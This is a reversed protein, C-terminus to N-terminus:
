TTSNSSVRLVKGALRTHGEVALCVGINNLMAAAAIEGAEAAPTAASGRTPAPNTGVHGGGDGPVSTDTKPSDQEKHQHQLLKQRLILALRFCRLSLATRRCYYLAIRHILRRLPRWPRAAPLVTNKLPLFCRRTRYRTGTSTMSVGPSWCRTRVGIEWNDHQHRIHVM